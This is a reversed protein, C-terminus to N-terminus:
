NYRRKIKQYYRWRRKLFKRHPKCEGCGYANIADKVDGGCMKLSKRFHQIGARIQELPDALQYSKAYRPMIQLLGHEGKKGRIEYIWSSEKSITTVILWPDIDDGCEAIITPLYSLAADLRKPYLPIRKQGIKRSLFDTIYETLKSTIDDAYSPTAFM